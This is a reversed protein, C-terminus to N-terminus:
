EVERFAIWEAHFAETPIPSGNRSSTGVGASPGGLPQFDQATVTIAGYQEEVIGTALYPGLGLYATAPSIGPFLTVDLLGWEDELTVFQMTGGASTLVHRAAAAVGAVQVKRGVHDPLDRSAVLDPPLQPRFLSLLPPGTLFGLVQWEEKRRRDVAYDAPAWSWPPPPFLSAAATRREADHLEAELFLAPRPQGTFDLAGCRILLALAEPGPAVRRRFDALHLYPGRQERDALLAARFEEDLGAIAELGVRIADDEVRCPGASRNICPLHLTIGARKIAEVYVRRPYMGQNNNLAATWFSLPHHAKLFAATWAILGYSVAHSKCFAYQRFEALHAWVEGAATRCVGRSACAELFTGALERAEEPTRQKAVRKRFRDATPAPWGTLAEVVRLTDDEYLMLGQTESLLPELSAHPYQVPELGRRRRIFCEKRGHSAAGPRILALAQIVDHLSEARMQVLLHRMAPSELQNVGLTDGRRLLAVTAPDDGPCHIAPARALRIAEEVTALARNGLLDIKVLGIHEAADKDFQTIIIGKPARQLPAYDELPRPTIVVGGPHISLYHPRGLLLRADAVLRPWRAAELPFGPPTAVPPQQRLLDDVRNTLTELLRSVQENSLGHVKAAERFASRPQLFLHSSIMATHAPGFRRFVHALVQDRVKWDFDLDIDPLDARGPHLFRELPLQFRLPDVDTIELLFCVLSNGASGRLAMSYGQRRAYRAIDRVILFYGALDQAEIIALEERLRQRADLDNGAQRRRLGRECLLRLYRTPALGRPVRPAPLVVEHPLVDSRLQEALLETHHVAEPLDRFRHRLAEPTALHHEPTIALRAPLRDLLTAQRVATILRFAPYDAATAFHTATSAIPRLGLRRGCALLEREHQASRAPRVLELWLRRGFAERLREALVVDSVLLHLGDTNDALLDALMGAGLHLRSLIRCLSRYGVREAILAVCQSRHQRLCAGLIPRVGHRHAQEVFSVAGYLNNTDTLALAPYGCGAARRLLEEP